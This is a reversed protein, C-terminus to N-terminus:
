SLAPFGAAARLTLWAAETKGLRPKPGAAAWGRAAARARTRDLIRRYVTMMATAAWMRRRGVQPLLAAAERYRAAAREALLACAPGFGPHATATEPDADAPVGHAALFERPVYLRGMAADEAADRLINTLQLAEGLILAFRDDVPRRDAAFIRVLLRGVAGAVRACYTELAAADPAVVPGAADTEMGDLVADLADRPLAFDATARALPSDVDTGNFIAAVGARLAALEARRADPPADGDVADDAARCFAYVAFAARRKKAPLLRM